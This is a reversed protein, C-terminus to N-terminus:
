ANTVSCAAHQKPRDVVARVVSAEPARESRSAALWRHARGASGIVDFRDPRFGDADVGWVLSGAVFGGCAALLRGFHPDPQFTAVFGCLALSLIGAGVWAVGRHGRYGHWTDPM